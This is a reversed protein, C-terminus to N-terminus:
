SCTFVRTSSDFLGDWFTNIVAVSSGAYNTTVGYSILNRQIFGVAPSEHKCVMIGGPVDTITSITSQGDQTLELIGPPLTVSQIETSWNFAGGFFSEFRFQGYMAYSQLYPSLSSQGTLTGGVTDSITSPATGVMMTHTTTATFDCYDTKTGSGGWAVSVTNFRTNVSDWSWHTASSSGLVVYIAANPSYRVPPQDSTRYPLYEVPAAWTLDCYMKDTDKISGPLMFGLPYEHSFM